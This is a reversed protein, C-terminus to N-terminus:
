CSQRSWKATNIRAFKAQMVSEITVAHCYNNKFNSLKSIHYGVTHLSVSAFRHKALMQALQKRNAGSIDMHTFALDKVIRRYNISWSCM